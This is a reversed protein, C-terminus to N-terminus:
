FEILHFEKNGANAARYSFNGAYMRGTKIQYVTTAESILWFDLFTKLHNDTDATDSHAIEGDVIYVWPLASCAALFRSSDSTVLVRKGLNQQHIELVKRLCKDILAEQERPALKFKAKPEHFDGLLEMFRTSISIYNEGLMERYPRLADELLPSPRFLDHFYRSFDEDACVFPSYVHLQKTNSRLKKSAYNKEWKIERPGTIGITDTFVPRAESINFTLEGPKLRWDYTNPILYTELKFPFIFNLRFRRDTERCLAYFYIAGRLRDALGGHNRKGDYMVVVMKGKSVSPAADASYQPLLHRREIRKYRYSRFFLKNAWWKLEKKIPNM